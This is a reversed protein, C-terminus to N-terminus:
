ILIESKLLESEVRRVTIFHLIPIYRFFDLSFNTGKFDLLCTRYKIIIMGANLM